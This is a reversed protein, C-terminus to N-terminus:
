VLLGHSPPGRFSNAALFSLPQESCRIAIRALKRVPANAVVALLCLGIACIVIPALPALAAVVVIALWLVALRTNRQM